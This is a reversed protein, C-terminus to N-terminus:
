RYVPVRAVGRADQLALLVAGEAPERTLLQARSNPSSVPLRRSLEQQLWPVARFIGGALIFPFPTGVLDLRRAVSM